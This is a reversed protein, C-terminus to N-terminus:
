RVAEKVAAQASAERVVKVTQGDTYLMFTVPVAVGDVLEHGVVRAENEGREIEAKLVRVPLFALIDAESGLPGHDPEVPTRLVIPVESLWRAVEAKGGYDAIILDCNGKRVVGNEEFYFLVTVSHLKGSRGVPVPEAKDLWAELVGATGNLLDVQEQLKM